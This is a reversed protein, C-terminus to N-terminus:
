ERVIDALYEFVADVIDEEPSNRIIVTISEAVGQVTTKELVIEHYILRFLTVWITEAIKGYLKAIKYIGVEYAEIEEEIDPMNSLVHQSTLKMLSLYVKPLLKLYPLIGMDVNPLGDIDPGFESMNVILSTKWVQEISDKTDIASLLNIFFSRRIEEKNSWGISRAFGQYLNDMCNILTDLWEKEMGTSVYIAPDYNHILGGRIIRSAEVTLWRLSVKKSIPSIFDTSEIFNSLFNLREIYDNIGLSDSYWPEPFGEMKFIAEEKLKEFAPNTKGIYNLAMVTVEESDHYICHIYIPIGSYVKGSKIHTIVMQRIGNSDLEQFLETVKYDQDAILLNGIAQDFLSITFDHQLLYNLHDLWENKTLLRGKFPARAPTLLNFLEEPLHDNNM